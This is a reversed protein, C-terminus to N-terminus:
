VASRDMDAIALFDGETIIKIFLIRNETTYSLTKGIGTLTYKGLVMVSFLIITLYIFVIQRPRLEEM